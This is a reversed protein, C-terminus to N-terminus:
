PGGFKIMPARLPVTAHQNLFRVEIFVKDLTVRGKIVHFAMSDCSQLETLGRLTGTVQLHVLLHVLAGFM